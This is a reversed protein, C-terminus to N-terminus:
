HYSVCAQGCSLQKEVPKYDTNIYEVREGKGVPARLDVVEEELTKQPQPNMSALQQDKSIPDTPIVDSHNNPYAVPDTYWASDGDMRTTKEYMSKPQNRRLVQYVAFIYLVGLIPNVYVFLLITVIFYFVLALSSGLIPKLSEPTNIPLLIYSILVVTTIIDIPTFNTLKM